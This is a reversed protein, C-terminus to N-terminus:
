NYLDGAYYCKHVNGLSQSWEMILSLKKPELKTDWKQNLIIPIWKYEYTKRLNLCAYSNM